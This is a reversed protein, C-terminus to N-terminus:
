TYDISCIFSYAANAIYFNWYMLAYQKSALYAFM